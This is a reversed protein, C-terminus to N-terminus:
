RPGRDDNKRAVILYMWTFDEVKDAKDLIYALAQIVGGIASILASIM